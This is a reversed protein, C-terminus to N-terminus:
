YIKVLQNQNNVVFTINFKKNYISCVYDIFADLDFMTRQTQNVIRGNVNVSVTEDKSTMKLVGIFHHFANREMEEIKRNEKHHTYLIEIFNKNQLAAIYEERSM